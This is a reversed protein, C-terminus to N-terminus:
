CLYPMRYYSLPLTERTRPTGPEIKPWTYKTNASVCRRCNCCRDAATDAASIVQQMHKIFATCCHLVAYIHLLNNQACQGAEM